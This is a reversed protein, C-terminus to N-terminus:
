HSSGLVVDGVAPGVRRELVDDAGGTLRVGLLEDGPARVAVLRQDALPAHAEGSALALADGDGAGEQLIRRNEDEVLRGRVQVGLALEHDLLREGLQHMPRVTSTIAWRSAVTRFASRM